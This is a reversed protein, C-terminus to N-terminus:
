IAPSPTLQRELEELTSPLAESEVAVSEGTAALLDALETTQYTLLRVDPGFEDLVSRRFTVPAKTDADVGDALRVSNGM